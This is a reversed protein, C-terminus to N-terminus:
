PRPSSTAQASREGTLCAPVDWGAQELWVAAKEESVRLVEAVLRIGRLRLKENSIRVNVM